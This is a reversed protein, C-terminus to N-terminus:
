IIADLNKYVQKSKQIIKIYNRTEDIIIRDVDLEADKSYLKQLMGEGANYCFLVRTEDEYRDFLYRLYFCGMQINIEPNYLMDISFNNLELEKAIFEATSPMIQMLGRAGKISKATENYSSEAKIVAQVLHKDLGYQQANKEIITIYGLPYVLKFSAVFVSLVFCLVSLSLVLFKILFKKKM